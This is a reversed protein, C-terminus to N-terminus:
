PEDIEGPAGHPHQADPDRRFSRWNMGHLAPRGRRPMPHGGGHARSPSSTDTEGSRRKEYRARVHIRRRAHTGPEFIPAARQFIPDDEAAMEVEVAYKVAEVLDGFLPSTEVIQTGDPTYEWEFTKPFLVDLHPAILDFAGAAMSTKSLELGDSSRLALLHDRYMHALLGLIPLVLEEKDCPQARPHGLRCCTLEGQFVGLTSVLTAEDSLDLPGFSGDAGLVHMNSSGHRAWFSMIEAVAKIASCMAAYHAGDPDPESWGLWQHSLFLFILGSAQAKRVQDVTHFVVIQAREVM